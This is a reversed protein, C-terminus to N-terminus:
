SDDQKELKAWSDRLAVTQNFTAQGPQHDYRDAVFYGLREFQFRDEAKTEALSPELKAQKLVKLSDPNLYATFPQEDKPNDPRAKTFLRDYVRVTADLAHPASVWHITGKVKRESTGTGSRTDPDYTCHIEVINGSEDKIVEQFDVVYAFRLRVAGGPKLRFYKRPPEEMFDDREIYIERSFPVKRTGMEPKQAHNPCVMEEVQEETYNTILLKIPDLNAM